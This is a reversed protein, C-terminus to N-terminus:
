ISKTLNQLLTRIGIMEKDLSGFQTNGTTTAQKGQTIGAGLRNLSQNLQQVQPQIIRERQQRQAEEADQQAKLQNAVDKAANQEPAVDQAQKQIEAATLPAETGQKANSLDVTTGMDASSPAYLETLYIRNLRM